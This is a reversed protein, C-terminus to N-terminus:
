ETFLLHGHGDFVGYMGFRRQEQPGKRVRRPPPDNKPRGAQRDKKRGIKCCNGEFKKFSDLFKQFNYVSKRSSIQSEGSEGCNRYFEIFNEDFFIRNPDPKLSYNCFM